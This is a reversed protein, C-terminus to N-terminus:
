GNKVFIIYANYGPISGAVKPTATPASLCQLLSVAIAHISCLM